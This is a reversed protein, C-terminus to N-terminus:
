KRSFVYVEIIKGQYSKKTLLVPKKVERMFQQVEFIPAKLPQEGNEVVVILKDLNMYDYQSQPQKDSVEFFYRYKMARYERNSNLLALNYREGPKISSSIDQVITRFLKMDSDKHRWISLQGANLLALLAVVGWVVPLLFKRLSALHAFIMGTVLFIAPFLFAFYHPYVTNRYMCLGIITMGIWVYLILEATSNKNKKVRTYAIFIASVIFVVLLITNVERDTMTTHPLGLTEVITQLGRGHLDLFFRAIRDSLPSTQHQSTLFEQFGKLILHDHRLDFAILPSFVLFVAFFSLLAIQIHTTRKKPHKWADYLFLMASPFLTLMAVYHLQTMVAFSLGVGLWYWTKGKLARYTCWMMLLGFFPAPNPQWSFRSLHMVVPATAYLLAAMGAAREGVMEKGLLFVLAVTMVGLLAMGYAPGTPDPYTLALFPTMAYYYLPGLYMNGVSTGPGLLTLDHDILIRKMGIADRGQDDLFELYDTFRFFRVFSAILMLIVLFLYSKKM